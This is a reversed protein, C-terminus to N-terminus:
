LFAISMDLGETKFLLASALLGIACFKLIARLSEVDVETGSARSLARALATMANRWVQDAFKPKAGPQKIDRRIAFV